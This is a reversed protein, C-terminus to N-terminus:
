INEVMQINWTMFRFIQDDQARANSKVVCFGIKYRDQCDVRCNQIAAGAFSSGYLTNSPFLFPQSDSFWPDLRKRKCWSIKSM